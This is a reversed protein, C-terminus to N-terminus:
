GDARPPVGRGSPCAAILPRISAASATAPARRAQFRSCGSATAGVRMSSSWRALLDATQRRDPGAAAPKGTITLCTFRDFAVASTGLGFLIAARRGLKDSLRGWLPSSALQVISFSAIMWGIVWEDAQLRLAYFPLLPFIMAFGLMDVFAAAMLVSLRRM